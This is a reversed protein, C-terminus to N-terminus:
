AAEKSLGLLAAKIADPGSVTCLGYDHMWTLRWPKRPPKWLVVPIGPLPGCRGRDRCAQEWANRLDATHLDMSAYGYKVEIHVGSLDKCYIDMGGAVGHSASNVAAFGLSILFNKGATQGVKGKRNARKGAAVRRPCKKKAM